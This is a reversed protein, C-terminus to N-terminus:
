YGREMSCGDSYTYDWRVKEWGPHLSAWITHVGFRLGQGNPTEGFVELDYRRGESIFYGGSPVDYVDLFKDHRELLPGNVIPHARVTCPGSWDRPRNEVAQAPGIAMVVFVAILLVVIAVRIGVVVWSTGKRSKGKRM